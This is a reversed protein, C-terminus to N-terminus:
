QASPMLCDRFQERSEPVLQGSCEKVSGPQPREGEALKVKGAGIKAKRKDLMCLKFEKQEEESLQGLCVKMKERLQKMKAKKDEKVPPKPLASIMPSPSEALVSQGFVALLAVTLFVKKTM